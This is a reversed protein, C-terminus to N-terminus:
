QSRAERLTLPPLRRRMIARHEQTRLLLRLALAQVLSTPPQRLRYVRNFGFLRPQPTRLQVLTQQQPLHSDQAVVVAAGQLPLQRLGSSLSRQAALLALARCPPPRFVALRTAM